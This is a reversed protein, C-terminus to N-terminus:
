QRDGYRLLAGHGVLQLLEAPIAVLREGAAAPRPIELGDALREGAQEGVRREDLPGAPGLRLRPQVQQVLVGVEAELHEGVDVLLRADRRRVVVALRPRDVALRGPVGVHGLETADVVAGVRRVGLELHGALVAEVGPLDADVRRARDVRDVVRLLRPEDSDGAGVEVPDVPVREIRRGPRDLPHPWLLCGLGARAARISASTAWFVRSPSISPLAYASRASPKVRIKPTSRRAFRAYPGAIM